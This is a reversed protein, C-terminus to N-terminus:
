LGLMTPIQKIIQFIFELYILVIVAVGALPIMIDIKTNKHTRNYSFLLMVPAMPILAISEGIGLLGIEQILATVAATDILVEPGSAKSFIMIILIIFDLVGAILFIVASFISFHLSNRNTKLFQHYEARTRGNKCFRRERNKVFLALVLFVLFMMPPKTTLFPFFIPSLEILKSTALYKLTLSAAEYLVPLLALLRFAILKKGVFFRKPKCNLFFMFMTCLFLDIFINFSLAGGRLHGSTFHRLAAAFETQNQRFVGALGLIYHFYIFLFLVIIALAAAGHMTIQRKYENVNNLISSFTAFLLFPVSLSAVSSLVSLTLPSPVMDAPAFRSVLSFLLVLQALALCLWGLIKFGRGSLPGRYRIDKELDVEHLKKRKRKKKQEEM